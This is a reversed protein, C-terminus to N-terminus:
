AGENLYTLKAQSHPQYALMTGTCNDTISMCAHEIIYMYTQIGIIEMYSDLSGASYYVSVDVIPRQKYKKVQM